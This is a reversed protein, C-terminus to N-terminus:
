VKRYSLSQKIAFCTKGAFSYDGSNLDPHCVLSDCKLLPVVLWGVLLCFVCDFAFNLVKQYLKSFLM